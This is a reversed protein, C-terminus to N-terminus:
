VHARGIELTLALQEVASLVRKKGTPGLIEPDLRWTIEYRAGEDTNAYTEFKKLLNNLFTSKGCGPPGKFIYIKNQQFGLRIGEVLNVLRNAFIRDAFFARDVGEEFLGSTDYHMYRISEPDDPYEDVGGGIYYDILNQFVQFVNRLARQPNAVVMDLYEEFPVPQRRSQDTM